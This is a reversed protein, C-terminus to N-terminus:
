RTRYGCLFLGITLQRSTQTRDVIRTPAPNAPAEARNPKGFQDLRVPRQVDGILVHTGARQIRIGRHQTFPNQWEEPIQGQPLNRRRM